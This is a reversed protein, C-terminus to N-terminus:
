AQVAVEYIEHTPTGTIGFAEVIAERQQAAQVSVAEAAERTEWLTVTMHKGTARDILLYLGKLDTLRGAQQAARIRERLVDVGNDLKEPAGQAASVRAFMDNERREPAQKDQLYV